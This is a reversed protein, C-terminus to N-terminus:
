LREEAQKRAQLAEDYTKFRGLHYSKYNHMIQAVWKNRSKDWFVGGQKKMKRINEQHTVQELNAKRNDLTNHNIHNVVFEHKANTILRHMYWQGTAKKCKPSYVYGGKSMSWPYDKVLDWDEDDILVIGIIEKKRNYLKIEM